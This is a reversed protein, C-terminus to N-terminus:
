AGIGLDDLIDPIAPSILTNAMIGTLTISFIITRPPRPGPAAPGPGGAPGHRVEGFAGAGRDDRTGPTM